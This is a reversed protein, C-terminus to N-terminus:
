FKSWLRNWLDITTWEYDSNPKGDIEAVCYTMFNPVGKPILRGEAVDIGVDETLSFHTMDVNEPNGCSFVYPHQNVDAMSPAHRIQLTHAMEHAFTAKNGATSLMRRHDDFWFKIIGSNAIGGWAYDKGNPVLGVWIEENVPYDDAIDELRDLLNSWGDDTKLNEDNETKLVTRKVGTPAWRYRFGNERIPFRTRAGQICHLLDINTPAGYGNITDEIFLARLRLGGNPVFNVSTSSSDRSQGTCLVETYVEAEIKILGHLNTIPLAFNLSHELNGRDMETKPRANTKGSQNVVNTISVENGNPYTLKLNGKVEPVVNVGADYYDVGDQLGSDVYVRVLTRKESVLRVSNNNQNPTFSFQQITQTVEIGVIQLDIKKLIRVKALIGTRGCANDAMIRYMLLSHSHKLPTFPGFNQRGSSPVPNATLIQPGHLTVQELYIVDANTASWVLLLNEGTEVTLDQSGNISIYATPKGIFITNGERCEPTDPLYPLSDLRSSQGLCIKAGQSFDEMSRRNQEHIERRTREIEENRIGVCFRGTLGAPIQLLIKTDSWSLVEMPHPGFVVVNDNQTAGFGTGTIRLIDGECGNGSTDLAEINASSVSDPLIATGKGAGRVFDQCYERIPSCNRPFGAPSPSPGDDPGCRFAPRRFGSNPPTWPEAELPPQVLASSGSNARRRMMILKTTSEFEKIRSIIQFQKKLRDGGDLRDQYSLSMFLDGCLVNQWMRDITALSYLNRKEDGGALFHAAEQIFYVTAPKLFFLPGCPGGGDPRPIEGRMVQMGREAREQYQQIGGTGYGNNKLIDFFKSEAASEGNWIEPILYYLELLPKAAELASVLITDFVILDEEDAFSHVAKILDTVYKIEFPTPLKLM